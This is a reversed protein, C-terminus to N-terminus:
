DQSINTDLYRFTAPMDPRSQRGKGEGVHPVYVREKNSVNPTM